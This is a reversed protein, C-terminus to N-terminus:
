DGLVGYHKWWPAHYSFSQPYDYKRVGDLTGYSLHQNM